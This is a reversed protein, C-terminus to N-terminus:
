YRLGDTTPPYRGWDSGQVLDKFTWGNSEIWTHFFSHLLRSVFIPEMPLRAPGM